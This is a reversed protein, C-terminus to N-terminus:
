NTAIGARWDFQTEERSGVNSGEKRQSSLDKIITEEM